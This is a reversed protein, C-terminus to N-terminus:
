ELESMVADYEAVAEALRTEGQELLADADMDVVDSYATAEIFSFALGFDSLIADMGDPLGSVQQLEYAERKLAGADCEPKKSATLFVKAATYLADLRAKTDDSLPPQYTIGNMGVVDAQDAVAATDGGACYLVGGDALIAHVGGDAPQMGSVGDALKHAASDLRYLAGDDALAYAVGEYVYYRKVDELLRVSGTDPAFGYLEDSGHADPVMYFVHGDTDFMPMGPSIDIDGVGSHVLVPAGWGGDTKRMYYLADDYVYVLQTFDININYCFTDAECLAAKDGGIEVDSLMVTESSLWDDGTDSPEALLFRKEAASDIDDGYVFATFWPLPYDIEALRVEEQGAACYNLGFGTLNVFSGDDFM